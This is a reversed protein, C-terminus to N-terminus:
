PQKGRCEELLNGARDFCSSSRGAGSAPYDRFLSADLDPVSSAQESGSTLNRRYVYRSSTGQPHSGQVAVAEAEQKLRDYRIRVLCKEATGSWGYYGGALPALDQPPENTRNNPDNRYADYATQIRSLEQRALNDCATRKYSIYYPVSIALIIGLVAAVVPIVIILVVIATMYGSRPLEYKDKILVMILLGICTLLGLFTLAWHYGKRKVLCYFGWFYPVASLIQILSGIAKGSDGTLGVLAALLGLGLSALLLWLAKREYSRLVDESPRSEKAHGGQTPVTMVSTPLASPMAIRDSVRADLEAQTIFGGDVLKKFLFDLQFASLEYKNMLEDNSLGQKIDALIEQVPVEKGETM